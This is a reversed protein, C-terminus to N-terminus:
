EHKQEKSKNEIKLYGLKAINNEAHKRCRDKIEIAEEATKPETAIQLLMMYVDQLVRATLYNHKNIGPSEYVSEVGQLDLNNTFLKFKIYDNISMNHDESIRKLLAKEHSSIRLPFNPEYMRYRM